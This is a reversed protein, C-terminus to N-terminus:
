AGKIMLQLIAAAVIFAGITIWRNKRSTRWMAFFSHSFIYAIFLSLVFAAYAFFIWAEGEAIEWTYITAVMPQQVFHALIVAVLTTEVPYQIHERWLYLAGVAAAALTSLPTSTFQAGEPTIITFIGWIALQGIYVLTITIFMTAILLKRLTRISIRAAYGRGLRTAIQLFSTAHTHQNPVEDNHM